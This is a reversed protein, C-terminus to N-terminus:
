GNNRFPLVTRESPLSEMDQDQSKAYHELCLRVYASFSLHMGFANKVHFKHLSAPLSINVRINEAKDVKSNKM